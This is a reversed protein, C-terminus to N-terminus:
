QSHVFCENAYCVFEAAEHVYSEDILGGEVSAGALVAGAAFGAFILLSVKLLFSKLAKPVGLYGVFFPAKKESM